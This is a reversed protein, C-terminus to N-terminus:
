KQADDSTNHKPCAIFTIGETKNRFVEACFQSWHDKQFIDIYWITGYVFAGRQHANLAAASADSLWISATNIGNPALLFTPSKGATPKTDQEPINDLSQTQNIYSAGRIAPTKGSNRYHVSAGLISFGKKIERETPIFEYAAVWAREDLAM